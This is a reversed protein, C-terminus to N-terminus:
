SARRDCEGFASPTELAVVCGAGLLARWVAAQVLQQPPDKSKAELPFFPLTTGRGVDSKELAVRVIEVQGGYRDIREPLDRESMYLGSPDWDGIYILVLPKESETSFEAIDHVTTASGFGRMVRLDIGYKDLVPKIVGRITGKESAIQIRYPQTTHYNKRYQKVATQIIHQPTEWTAIREVARTEDVIWEWPIHRHERAWVLQTGVADVDRKSMSAIQKRIFLQYCIARLSAPQIQELIHIAANILGISKASKGRGSM